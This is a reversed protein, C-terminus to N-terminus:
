HKKQKKEHAPTFNVQHVNLDFTVSLVVARNLMSLYSKKGGMM